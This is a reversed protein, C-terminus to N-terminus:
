EGGLEELLDIPDANPVVSERVFEYTGRTENALTELVSNDSRYFFQVGHIRADSEGLADKVLTLAQEATSDGQTFAFADDSLFYIDTPNLALAKAIARTPNSRGSPLLPLQDASLWDESIRNLVERTPAIMGEPKISIPEGSKFFYIAFREDSEVTKVARNLWVLMQPLSDVLSGSADVLFVIRAPPQPVAPEAPTDGVGPQDTSGPTIAPPRAPEPTVAPPTDPKDTTGPNTAPDRPLAPPTNGRTIGDLANSGLVVPGSAFPDPSGEPKPPSVDGPTPTPTQTMPPTPNTTPTQGPRDNVSGPL